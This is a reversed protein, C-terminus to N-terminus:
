ILFKGACVKATQQTASEPMSTTGDLRIEYGQSVVIGHKISWNRAEFNCSLGRFYSPNRVKPLFTNFGFILEPHGKFLEKVKDIVGATDIQNAKFQKM